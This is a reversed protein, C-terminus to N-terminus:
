RKRVRILTSQAEEHAKLMAILADSLRQAETQIASVTCWGIAALVWWVRSEIGTTLNWSALGITLWLAWHRGIFRLTSM